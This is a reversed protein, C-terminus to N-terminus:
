KFIHTKFLYGAFTFPYRKPVKDFLTSPGYFEIKHYPEKKVAMALNFHKPQSAPAPGFRLPVPGC